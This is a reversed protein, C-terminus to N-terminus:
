SAPTQNLYRQEPKNAARKAAFVKTTPLDNQNPPAFTSVM